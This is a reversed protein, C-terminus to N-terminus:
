QNKNVDSENQQVKVNAMNQLREHCNTIEVDDHDCHRFMSLSFLM